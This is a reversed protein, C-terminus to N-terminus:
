SARKDLSLSADGSGCMRLQWGSVEEEDQEAPHDDSRAAFLVDTSPFSSFIPLSTGTYTVSRSDLHKQAIECARLKVADEDPAALGEKRLQKEAEDVLNDDDVYNEIIAIPLLVDARYRARESDTLAEYRASGKPREAADVGTAWNSIGDRMDDLLDENLEGFVSKKALRERRQGGAFFDDNFAQAFPHAENIIREYVPLMDEAVFKRLNKIYKANLKLETDGLQPFLRPTLELQPIRFLFYLVCLFRSFTQNGRFCCTPARSKGRQATRSSSRSSARPKAPSPRRHVRTVQAALLGGPASLRPSVTSRFSSATALLDDALALSVQTFTRAGM